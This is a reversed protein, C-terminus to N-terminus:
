LPSQRLADHPCHPATRKWAVADETAQPSRCPTSPRLDTWAPAQASARVRAQQSVLAVPSPLALWVSPFNGVVVAPWTSAFFYGADLRVCGRSSPCVTRAGVHAAGIYIALSLIFAVIVVVPAVLAPAFTSLTLWCPGLDQMSGATCTSSRALSQSWM